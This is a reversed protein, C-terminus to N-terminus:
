PAPRRTGRRGRPAPPAPPWGPERARRHRRQRRPLRVVVQERVPRRVLVEVRVRDAHAAVAVHASSWSATSCRSPARRDQGNGCAIPHAGHALRHVRDQVVDLDRLARREPVVVPPQPGGPEAVRGGAVRRDGLAGRDPVDVRQHLPVDRTGVGGGRHLRHERGVDQALCRSLDPVAREGVVVAQHDVVPRHELVGVVVDPDEGVGRPDELVPGLPGGAHLHVEAVAQRLHRQHRQLSRPRALQQRRQRRGIEAPQPVEAEQRLPDVDAPDRAPQHAGPEGALQPELQDRDRVARRLQPRRQGVAPATGIPSSVTSGTRISAPRM